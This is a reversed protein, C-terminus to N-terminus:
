SRGLASPPLGDGCIVTRLRPPYRLLFCLPFAGGHCRCDRGSARSYLCAGTRRTYPRGCGDTDRPRQFAAGERETTKKESSAASFTAPATIQVPALDQKKQRRRVPTSPTRNNNNRRRSTAVVTRQPAHLATACPLSPVRCVSHRAHTTRTTQPLPAPLM